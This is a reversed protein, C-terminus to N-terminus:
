TIIFTETQKQSRCSFVLSAILSHELCGLLMCLTYVLTIILSQAYKRKLWEFITSNVLMLPSASLPAGSRIVQSLGTWNKKVTSPNQTPWPFM